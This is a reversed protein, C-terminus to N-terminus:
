GQFQSEWFEIDTIHASKYFGGGFYDMLASIVKDKTCPAEIDLVMRQMPIYMKPTMADDPPIYRYGIEFKM